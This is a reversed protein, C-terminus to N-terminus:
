PKGARWQGCSDRFKRSASPLNGGCQPDETDVCQSRNTMHMIESEDKEKDTPLVPVRKARVRKEEEVEIM